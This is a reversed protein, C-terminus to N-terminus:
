AFRAVLRVITNWARTTAPAGGAKELLANPSGPSSGLKLCTSFAESGNTSLVEVDGRSSGFPLAPLTVRPSLFTVACEYVANRDVAVFPDADVLRALADVRRLFAPEVLGCTEHLSALAQKLVANARPAPAAFVLTGNVLFSAAETAGAAEFAQEFQMKTPCRPRGLNVNRLFVAFKM